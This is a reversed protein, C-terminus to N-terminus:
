QREQTLGSRTSCHNCGNARVHACAVFSAVSRAYVHIKSANNSIIAKTLGRTNSDKAVWKGDLSNAMTTMSSLLIAFLTIGLTGFTRFNFNFTTM